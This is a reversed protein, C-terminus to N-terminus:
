ASWPPRSDEAEDVTKELLAIRRELEADQLISRLQAALTAIANATKESFQLDAAKALALALLAKLGELTTLDLGQVDLAGVRQYRMGGAKSAARAVDRTEPDHTFCYERRPVRV